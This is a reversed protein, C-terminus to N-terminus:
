IVPRAHKDPAQKDTSLDAFMDSSNVQPAEEKTSEQNQLEEKTPRM